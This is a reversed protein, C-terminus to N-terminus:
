LKELETLTFEGSHCWFDEVWAERSLGQESLNDFVKGLVEVGFHKGNTTISDSIGLQELRDSLIYDEGYRTTLKLVTGPINHQRLWQLIAKVCDACELIDFQRTIAGIEQHIETDTWDDSRNSIVCGGLTSRLDL